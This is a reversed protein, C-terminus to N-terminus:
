LQLKRTMYRDMRGAARSALLCGAPLFATAALLASLNVSTTEMEPPLWQGRSCIYHATEAGLKALAIESLAFVDFATTGVGVDKLGKYAARTNRSLPKRSLQMIHGFLILRRVRRLNQRAVLVKLLHHEQPSSERYSGFYFM